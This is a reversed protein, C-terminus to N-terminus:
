TPDPLYAGLRRLRRRLEAAALARTDGGAAAMAAAVGAAQGTVFCCPMVRVSALMERAASICRGAV